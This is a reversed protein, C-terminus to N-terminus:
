DGASAYNQSYILGEFVHPIFTYYNLFKKGDVGMM